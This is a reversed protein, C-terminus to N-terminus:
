GDEWIPRSAKSADIVLEGDLWSTRVPLGAAAWGVSLTLPGPPPLPWIWCGGSFRRPLPAEGGATIFLDREPDPPFREPSRRRVDDEGDLRMWHTATDARRGDAFEVGFRLALGDSPDPKAVEGPDAATLAAFSLSFGQPYATLYTFAIVVDPNAAGELDLPVIGGIRDQPPLMWEFATVGSGM